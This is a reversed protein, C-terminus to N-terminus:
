AQLAEKREAESKFVTDLIKTIEEENDLPAEGQWVTLWIHLLQGSYEGTFIDSAIEYADILVSLAAMFLTFAFAFKESDVTGLPGLDTTSVVGQDGVYTDQLRNMLVIQWTNLVMDALILMFCLFPALNAAEKNGSLRQRRYKTLDITLVSLIMFSVYIQLAM